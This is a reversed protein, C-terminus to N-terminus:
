YKFMGPMQMIVTPENLTSIRFLLCQIVRILAISLTDEYYLALSFIYGQTKAQVGYEVTTSLAFKSRIIM